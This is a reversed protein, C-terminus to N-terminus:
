GSGTMFRLKHISDFHIVINSPERPSVIHPQRITGSARAARGADPAPGPRLGAVQCRDLGERAIGRRSRAYSPHGSVDLCPKVIVFDHTWPSAPGNNAETSRCATAAVIEMPRSRCFPKDTEASPAMSSNCSNCLSLR